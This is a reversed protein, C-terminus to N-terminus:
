RLYDSVASRIGKKVSEWTQNKFSVPSESEDADVFYTIAHPISIALMQSPFKQKHWNMMQQFSYHQLLEYIDWFDKKKGRGLIAQIKMAAIDMNSYFRIGDIEEIPSIPLHPYYVLDVKIDDIFCFIGFYTQQQKYVFRQNFVKELDVVLQPQDFKEHLFLDLDISSRHGYRLSLATGGVLSFRNLSPMTM